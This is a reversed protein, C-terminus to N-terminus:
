FSIGIQFGIRPKVGKYEVDFVSYSEYYDYNNPDTRNDEIETYRIGGGIYFDLIIRPTVDIQMGIIAGGEYANIKKDFIDTIYLQTKEDWYGSIYDEDYDLYQGYLGTYFGVNHLGLFTSQQDKRIHTLYFRYQGMIQWGKKSEQGEEKLIFSPSIMISSTREGFYKEYSMQFEANGLEVPSIKVANNYGFHGEQAMLLFPIMMLITIITNKM